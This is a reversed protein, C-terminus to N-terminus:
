SRQARRRGQRREWMGEGVTLNFATNVLAVHSWAQPFNGLLRRTAPDYEEALLGLENRLSCLRDFLERAEDFRGQLCLVDALWFSCPLFVGEGPPLGDVQESEDDTEYRAVLGDVVLERRITEVTSVMRPDDVDIFGVLPMLLAAADLREGEFYQV